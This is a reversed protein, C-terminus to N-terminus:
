TWDFVDTSIPPQQETGDDASTTQVAATGDQASESSLTKAGMGSEVTQGGHVTVASAAVLAGSILWRALRSTRM